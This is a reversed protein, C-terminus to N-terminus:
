ENSLIKVYIGNVMKNYAQEGMRKIDESLASARVWRNEFPVSPDLLRVKNKFHFDFNSQDEKVRANRRIQSLLSRIEDDKTQASCIM